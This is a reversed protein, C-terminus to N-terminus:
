NALAFSNFQDASLADDGDGGNLELTITEDVAVDADAVDEGANLNVGLFSSARLANPGSSGVIRLKDFSGDGGTIEFEIESSGDGEDTAGRALPGGSLDVVVTDSDFDDPFPAEISETNTVTPDRM